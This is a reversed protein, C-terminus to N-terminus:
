FFIIGKDPVDRGKAKQCLAEQLGYQRPKTRSNNHHQAKGLWVGETKKYPFFWQMIQHLSTSYSRCDVVLHGWQIWLLIVVYIVNSFTVSTKVLLAADVNLWALTNPSFFCGNAKTNPCIIYIAQVALDRAVTLKFVHTTNFCAPGRVISLLM